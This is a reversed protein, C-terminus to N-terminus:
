AATTRGVVREDAIFFEGSHGFRSRKAGSAVRTGTLEVHESILRSLGTREALKLVPVLGAASVLNREDFVASEIHVHVAIAGSIRKQVLSSSSRSL